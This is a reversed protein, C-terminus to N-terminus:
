AFESHFEISIDNIFSNSQQGISVNVLQNLEEKLKELKEKFKNLSIENFDNKKENPINLKIQIKELIQNTCLYDILQERCQKARQQIKQTSENEWQDIKTILPHKQPFNKLDTIFQRCRNFDDQIQYFQVNLLQQHEQLYSSCFDNSCRRCLYTEIEECKTCKTPLNSTAMIFSLIIKQKLTNNINLLLFHHTLTLLCLNSLLLSFCFM